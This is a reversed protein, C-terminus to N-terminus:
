KCLQDGILESKNQIRQEPIQWILRPTDEEFLATQSGSTAHRREIFHCLMKKFPLLISPRASHVRSSAEGASNHKHLPCRWNEPLGSQASHTVAHSYNTEPAPQRFYM